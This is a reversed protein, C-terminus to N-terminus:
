ILHEAGFSTSSDTTPPHTTNYLGTETAATSAARERSTYVTSACQQRYNAANAAPNTYPCVGTETTSVALRRRSKAPTRRRSRLEASLPVSLLTQRHRSRDL